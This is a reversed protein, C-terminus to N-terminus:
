NQSLQSRLDETVRPLMELVKESIEETTSGLGCVPTVISQNAIDHISIEVGKSIVNIQFDNLSCLFKDAIEQSTAKYIDSDNPVIGWAIIGGKNLFSMFGKYFLFLNQMYGNADISLIDVNTELLVSWDTNACCHIGVIAGELHIADIVENLMRVVQERSINVYASGFAAMYPEDIFIMISPCIKMLEKVQWRANMSINKIICDLLLDNYLSAKLDQDSITLGFSIPGTVQGKIWRRDKKSKGGDLIENEVTSFNKYGSQLEYFGKAFDEPLKFYDFDESLYREYFLELHPSLDVNTDFYTKESLKDIKISPLPSSFQIYMNERFDRKPLQPWVPIDLSKIIKRPLDNLEENPFSGLATSLFKPSFKRKM